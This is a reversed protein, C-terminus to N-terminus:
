NLSNKLTTSLNQLLNYHFLTLEVILLFLIRHTDDSYDINDVYLYFSSLEDLHYLNCDDLRIIQKKKALINVNITQIAVM